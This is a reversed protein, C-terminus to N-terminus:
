KAIEVVCADMIECSGIGKEKHHPAGAM